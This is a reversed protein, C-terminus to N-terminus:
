VDRRKGRILAAHIDLELDEALNYPLQLVIDEGDWFSFTLQLSSGWDQVSVSWPEANYEATM